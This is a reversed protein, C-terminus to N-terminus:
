SYKAIITVVDYVCYMLLYIAIILLVKCLKKNTKVLTENVDILEINSDLQAEIINDKEVSYETLLKIIRDQELNMAIIQQLGTYAVEEIEIEKEEM